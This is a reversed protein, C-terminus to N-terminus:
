CAGAYGLQVQSSAACSPARGEPNAGHLEAGTPRLGAGSRAFLVAMVRGVQSAGAARALGAPPPPLRGDTSHSSPRARKPEAVQRSSRPRASVPARRTASCLCQWALHSTPSGQCCRGPLVPRRFAATLPTVPPARRRRRGAQEVAAPGQEGGGYWRQECSCWGHQSRTPRARLCAHCVCLGLESAVLRTLWLAHGELSGVQQRAGTAALMDPRGVHM